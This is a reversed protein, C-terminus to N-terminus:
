HWSTQSAWWAGDDEGSSVLEKCFLTTGKQFSPFQLLLHHWGDSTLLNTNPPHSYLVDPVAATHNTVQIDNHKYVRTHSHTQICIHTHTHTHTHTCTPAHTHKYAYIRTHPPPPHAGPGLTEHDLSAVRHLSKHTSM